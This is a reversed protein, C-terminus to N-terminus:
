GALMHNFLLDSAPMFDGNHPVFSKFFHLKSEIREAYLNLASTVHHPTLRTVGAIEQITVGLVCFFFIAEKEDHHFDEITEDLVRKIDNHKIYDCPIQPILATM